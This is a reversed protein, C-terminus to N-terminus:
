PGPHTWQRPHRAQEAASWLSSLPHGPSTLDSVTADAVLLGDDTTVFFRAQGRAPYPFGPLLRRFPRFHAQLVAATECLQRSALRVSEKPRGALMGRGGWYTLNGGEPDVITTVPGDLFADVVVGRVVGPGQGEDVYHGRLAKNRLLEGTGGLV